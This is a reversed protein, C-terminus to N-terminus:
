AIQLVPIGTIEPLTRRSPSLTHGIRRELAAYTQYLAPHLRGGVTLDNDSGYLCFICSFRSMGADYARHPEQGAARIGAFVEEERLGHVPLWNYWERGARSNRADYEWTAQRARSASEQARMGMCNVVLGGFEPHAKLHRRIEREIPGRKFDSTCWRRGPGPFKRREEVRELLTKGSAIRALVLPVGAPITAEIHEVADPWEVQELPAHVVLLQARPIREALRWMMIQSDKGGSHNAVFLAGREVLTEIPPGPTPFLDLQM